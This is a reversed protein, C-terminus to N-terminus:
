LSQQKRLYQKYSRIDGDWKSIGHDVIWIEGGKGSDIIQSLLRFDHSIVVVGGKYENIAQPACPLLLYFVLSPTLILAISLSAMM